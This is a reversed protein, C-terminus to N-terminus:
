ADTRAPEVTINLGKLLWNVSVNRDGAWLLDSVHGHQDDSESTGLLEYISDRIEEMKKAHQNAMLSLGLLQLYEARSITEKAV